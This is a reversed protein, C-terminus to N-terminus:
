GREILATHGRMMKQAEVLYAVTLEHAFWARKKLAPLAAANKAQAKQERRQSAAAQRRAKRATKEQQKLARNAECANLIAEELLMAQANDDGCLKATEIGTVALVQHVRQILSVLANCTLQRDHM